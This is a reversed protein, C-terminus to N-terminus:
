AREVPRSGFLGYPRILLVVIMVIYPAVGAFGEGLASPAYGSSLVEVLGITLGGVVAGAPSGLGGLIIAPFARLAADGLSLTPANPFGALFVGGLCAVAGAMAWSIGQVRGVAVGVASAAEPDTATARMALGYRSRRDFLFFAALALGATVIAWIKVENLVLGGVHVADSGWPDGLVRREPGFAVAITGELAVSLGITVMVLVLPSASPLRQLVTAHFLWGGTSVALAALVVAVGFPVGHDTVLWSVGYAAVLLMSGQAFNIVHSSRFVIAFGLAILAYVSGLAVGQFVLQLLETM